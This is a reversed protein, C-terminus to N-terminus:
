RRFKSRTSADLRDPDVVENKRSEKLTGTVPRVEACCVTVIDYRCFLYVKVIDGCEAPFGFVVECDEAGGHFPRLEVDIEGTYLRPWETTAYCTFKRPEKDKSRQHFGVHYSAAIQPEPCPCGDAEWCREEAMEATEFMLAFKTVRIEPNGPLYPLLRRRLRTALDRTRSHDHFSRRFLEWADPFDHRADFFAWGNGPLRGHCAATAAKRLMEGGERATYSVRLVADTMTNPDFYNNEPPLEIRWRSVAGMYEFPLYRADSFDLQFLGSDNVGNSTAMADRAGFIKVARPDDPCLSYDDPQHRRDTCCHEERPCCCDHPPPSLRPDIRTVSSLLTLRCHVGTYPGTVCSITLTVGRVRRMFQGPFDQDFMWEALEIECTGNNRLRLYDLPFALRLSVNKTLEYERINEDYYSKEMHRLANSLREGAMLGEYLDDWARDPLFHRTTHGRELNYARQAQRAAQLALDYTQYYLAAAERQLYLYLEHSTFKDRLFNQVEGANEMQRQHANLDVLTQDRRRQAGLIQREAQQIEITLIQTQHV